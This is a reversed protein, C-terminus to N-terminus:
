SLPTYESTSALFVYQSTVGGKWIAIKTGFVDVAFAILPLLAGVYLWRIKTKVAFVGRLLCVFLVANAILQVGIWWTWLDYFFVDSVIPLLLFVVDAVSLAIVTIIGIRQMSKLIYATIM